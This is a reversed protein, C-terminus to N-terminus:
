EKKSKRGTEPRDGSDDSVAVMESRVDVYIATGSAMHADLLPAFTAAEETTLDRAPLGPVFQGGGAYRYAIKAMMWVETAREPARGHVLFAMEEASSHAYWAAKRRARETDGPRGVHEIVVADLLAAQDVLRGDRYLAWHAYQYRVSGTEQILRIRRRGRLGERVWVQYAGEPAALAPPLVGSVREDADLILYWDGPEGVLYRNRATVENIWGDAPATIVEAGAGRAIEVTGDTSGAGAAYTEFWRWAGDVVVLRECGAARLSDLAAGIRDAEQYACMVGIVAM